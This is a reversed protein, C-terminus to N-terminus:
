RLRNDMSQELEVRSQTADSELREIILEIEKDRERKCQNRIESERESIRTTQDKKYSLVWAQKEIELAEKLSKVENQPHYLM